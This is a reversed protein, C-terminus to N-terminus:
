KLFRDCRKDASRISLVNGGGSVGKPEQESLQSFKVSTFEHNHETANDVVDEPSKAAKLKKKLSTDAKIKGLSAKLTKTVCSDHWILKVLRLQRNEAM